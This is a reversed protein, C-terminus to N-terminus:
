LRAIAERGQKLLENNKDIQKQKERIEKDKEAIQEKLQYVIMQENDVMKGRRITVSNDNLRHILSVVGRNM